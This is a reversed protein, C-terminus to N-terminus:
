WAEADVVGGTRQFSQAIGALVTDPTELVEANRFRLVRIGRQELARQRKGDYRARAPDDHVAGDLEVALREAPCYFDVVFGGVSHQRRFKRGELRSGKLMQWLAREAPTAHNRLDRRIAKLDQRNSFRQEDMASLMCRPVSDVM